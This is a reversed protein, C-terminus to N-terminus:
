FCVSHDRNHAIHNQIYFTRVFKCIVAFLGSYPQLHSKICLAISCMGQSDRFKFRSLAHGM